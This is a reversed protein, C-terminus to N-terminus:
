RPTKASAQIYASDGIDNFARVRYFYQTNAKLTNDSFVTVNADVNFTTVNKTFTNSTAREIRFGTENGSNDTWSLNIQTKSVPTATLNSPVAPPLLAEVIVEVAPTAATAGRDDTVVASISYTGAAVGTWTFEYPAATDTSLLNAGSYFEVKQVIGDEDSATANVQITAPATFRQGSTPSTLNVLPATNPQMVNIGIPASTTSVGAADTAVATLQYAGAAVNEWAVAFPATTDTGILTVGAYFAVQAVPGEPDTADADIQVTAPATFTANPAPSTIAVAPAANVTVFATASATNTGRNDTVVAAIAYSGAAVDTWTFEYPAATDTSLLNGGSYFEVKQVSGDEDLATAALQITAPANFTAGSTPSTLTVVPAMNPEIVSVAIPASTTSVGAADTAVATLQYAGAAVNEWAVAFPATTDTGILTVGAYFAVQAVPGELDTADANIQVTAPATFTANPAPSTIAVAPAANVTVFATASATSTGRNDTVVAAIAYSGAAVDTWTFEYPAATDTSLLNGGSYFEVKQVSGDEDSATAALQITAPANFTAGSTPSALTVVPAMNPETVNVIIGNSTTSIGGADTAVATLHYTGVAVDQWTISFPSTTDTGILTTGSYFAVQSVPGEVDTADAAIQITAPANFTANPAPSTIAVSPAGNITVSVAASNASAGLDDFATATISHTGAPANNWVVEFTGPSGAVPTSTSGILQEGFYFDVQEVSGGESEPGPTTVATVTVPSNVTSGGAPSTIAVTPPSNFTDKRITFEDEVTGTSDLFKVDLRNGDVDLVLSGLELLSVFMAPYPNPNIRERSGGWWNTAKGSSGAVAYVAGQNAALGTPKTYAGVGNIEKGSGTAKKMSESFTSSLGYHGDIPFSREYSHSHGGMVLDVGGAELIPLINKRMELLELDNGNVNDSNHSGFSYPPHHFFAIIWDQTTSELDTRLWTAMAGDPSRDSSMSDLCIFHVNGYDFSYYKETGSPVGGAEGQTPFTHLDFYPAGQSTYYEHNGLTSWLPSQRLMTPYMNFVAAQFETDTGNPYANDGLMLWLNTYQDGGFGTYADRVAAADANATGSDGLVWFRFPQRTGVPPATFFTYESGSAIQGTQSGIAYFYQTDSQLDSIQVEHETTQAASEAVGGLEAPNTGFWVKSSTPVDTRWRIVMSTPTGKQLYPGRVVNVSPAELLGLMELDFSLDSSSAASQHLEVALVNVGALLTNPLTVQFFTSEDAGGVATSALTSSTVTGSPMNSRHIEIGNLYVVAGDDRMLRLKLAAYEAPDDVSFSRRLYTTIYRSTTSPGYSLLTAEGGDGYGLEAPGSAWGSDNFSPASWATGQNSGNDLYKWTSGAPVVTVSPIKTVGILELNFSIDSSSGNVQHIEVALVNEGAQLQTIPLSSQFFASENASDVASSALTNYGITGTPMNSRLIEVGNLYVVAGDDRVLRLIMSEFSAPDAVSFRHRFYTTISKNSATGAYSVVTAEGGDGYGLEAPGQKWSNDNFTSARWGTGQNSGNDLYKWTAGAPIFTADGYAPCAFAALLACLWLVALPRYLNGTAIIARLRNYM